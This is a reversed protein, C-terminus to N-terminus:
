QDIEAAKAKVVTFILGIEGFAPETRQVVKLEMTFYKEMRENLLQEVKKPDGQSLEIFDEEKM